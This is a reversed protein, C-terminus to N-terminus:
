KYMVSVFLVNLCDVDFYVILDVIEVGVDFYWLVVLFIQIWVYTRVQSKDTMKLM